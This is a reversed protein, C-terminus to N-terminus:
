NEYPHMGSQIRKRYYLNTNLRILSTKLGLKLTSYSLIRDAISKYSYFKKYLKWYDNILEETSINKPQFTVSCANQHDWNDDIIRKDRLFQERLETGPLFAPLYLQVHSVKFDKLLKLTEEM